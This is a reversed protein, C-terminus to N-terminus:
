EGYMAGLQSKAADLAKAMREKTYKDRQRALVANISQVLNCFPGDTPFAPEPANPKPKAHRPAAM